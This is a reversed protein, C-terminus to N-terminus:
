GQGFAQRFADVFPDPDPLAKHARWFVDGAGRGSRREFRAFALWLAASEAGYSSVAAEYM